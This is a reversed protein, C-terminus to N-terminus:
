GHSNRGVIFWVLSGVLPFALVALIWLAKLGSTYSRSNLISVIAAIALAIYAITFLLGIVGIGLSMKM